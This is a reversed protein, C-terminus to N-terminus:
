LLPEIPTAIPAPPPAVEKSAITNHSLVERELRELMWSDLQFARTLNFPSSDFYIKLFEGVSTNDDWRGKYDKPYALMEARFEALALVFQARVKDVHDLASSKMKEAIVEDLRFNASQLIDQETTM